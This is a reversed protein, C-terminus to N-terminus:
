APSPWDLWGRDNLQFKIGKTNLHEVLRPHWELVIGDRRNRDYCGDCVEIDWQPIYKGYAGPGHQFSRTCLFCKRMVPEDFERRTIM